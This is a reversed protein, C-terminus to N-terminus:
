SALIPSFVLKSVLWGYICTRPLTLYKLRELTQYHWPLYVSLHGLQRDASDTRPDNGHTNM